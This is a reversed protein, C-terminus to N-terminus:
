VKVWAAKRSSEIIREIGRMNAVGDEIPTPVAADDQTARSFADGRLTYQNCGEFTIEKKESGAHHVITGKDILTGIRQWQPHFRYMFAEMVKLKPYKKVKNLLGEVEQLNMGLPKECLVHKGAELAKLTWGVHLHNPLPNYVAEMDKDALLEQYSGYVKPIGLEKAATRAKQLDRSAIGVIQSYEGKQMAPIVKQTGIRATSLIGWSVKTRRNM